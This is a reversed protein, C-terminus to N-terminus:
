FDVYKKNNVGYTGTGVYSGGQIMAIKASDTEAILTYYLDGLFGGDPYAASDYSTVNSQPTQTVTVTYKTIGAASSIRVYYDGDEVARTIRSATIGDSKFMTNGTPTAQIIYKGNLDIAKTYNNYSISIATPNSLIFKGTTADITYSDARYWTSATSSTAAESVVALDYSYAAANAAGTYLM